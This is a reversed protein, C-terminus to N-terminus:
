SIATRLGLEGEMATFDRDRHLLVVDNEICWTAIIMDITSRITIARRRLLRYNEAAKRAIKEGGLDYCRFPALRRELAKANAEDRAGQLLEALILDGIVIESAGVIRDLEDVEPAKRGAFYEIWVSTDVLIM